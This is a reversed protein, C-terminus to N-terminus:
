IGMFAKVFAAGVQPVIANGYGKLLAVRGPVKVTLPYAGEAGCLDMGEPVGDDMRQLLSEAPIRRTKGDLCTHWVCPGNWFPAGDSSSRKGREGDEGIREKEEREGSWWNDNASNPLGGSDGSNGHSERRQSGQSESGENTRGDCKNSKAMGGHRRDGSAHERLPTRQESQEAGCQQESRECLGHCDSNAVGVWWLRQRIHPAGVGAACLDAAGVGYGLTELDSRVGALWMRGANSAVQEGLVNPPYCKEILRFFQPWLHRADGSGKRKGATSFPQCPCSGTWIPRDEPWGALRLALPWGGVGAFFHCQTYRLPEDDGVDAISREDVIGKPILGDAMLQRLWAAAKPDIENYYVSMSEVNTKM